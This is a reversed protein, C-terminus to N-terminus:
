LPLEPQAADLAAELRILHRTINSLAARVEPLDQPPYDGELIDSVAELDGYLLTSFKSSM